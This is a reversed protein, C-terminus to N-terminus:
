FNSYGNDGACYAGTNPPQWDAPQRIDLASTIFHSSSLDTLYYRDTIPPEEPGILYSVLRIM